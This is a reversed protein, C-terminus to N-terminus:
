PEGEKSFLFVEIFQVEWQPKRRDMKSVLRGKSSVKSVKISGITGLAINDNLFPLPTLAHNLKNM